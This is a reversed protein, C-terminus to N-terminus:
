LIPEPLYSAAAPESELALDIAAIVARVQAQAAGTFALPDALLGDLAGADLGLRSDAALRALLDNGATGQERMDLAVRVAHEKIAEHAQERGAGARVAAMLVKTTALFPLYRDLEAAIVAPFAGFDDLVTLTTELLGDLAFFADPLAVRRVVSCSVDGENWQSGALEAAMSAYGRLIVAFGNIREASRTNMKHPMASSGVQGPRFGETVLEHGAMLRLTTAFSSPAAALQVLASLVDYDLSRPYVQGVSTLVKDFGLHGAVRRELEALKGADGDFLDLMDQATGVPGKIGRLPYRALLEDLRALATLLEDAVSAFRKGLTTTQAAVNHSRGAMALSEYEAARRALRVLVALVKTRVLRLASRVQLQEVNETLDRSTMGRHILEHQQGGAGAGALANFEEIRAKVDHRTVRERAAISDLDVAGAGAEVVARYAEVAGDPTSIGLERQAVLVALWLQREAVVKHEPSFLTAMATSAYRHALVDPVTPKAPKAPM